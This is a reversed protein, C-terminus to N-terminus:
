GHTVKVKEIDLGNGVPQIPVRMVHQYTTVPRIGKLYKQWFAPDHVTLFEIQTVRLPTEAAEYARNMRDAWRDMEQVLAPILEHISPGDPDRRMQNGHIYPHGSVVAPWAVYHGVARGDGDLILAFYTLEPTQVWRNRLDQIFGASAMQADGFEEGFQRVRRELEPWASWSSADDPHLRFIRLSM